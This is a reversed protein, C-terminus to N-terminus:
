RFDKKTKKINPNEKAKKSHVKKPRGGNKSVFIAAVWKSAKERNVIENASSESQTNFTSTKREWNQVRIEFSDAM